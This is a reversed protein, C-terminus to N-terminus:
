KNKRGFLRKKNEPQDEYQYYYQSYGGMKQGCDNLISGIVNVNLKKLEKYANLILKQRAKGERIVMLTGDAKLALLQPDTVSLVPPTDIIIYDYTEKLYSLLQSMKESGVLEAPNPPIKGATLVDFQDDVKQIVESPNLKQVILDSLGVQNSLQLKKHITPKRLDADILLVKKNMKSFSKALNSAVTSKGEGPISSTVVLSKLETDIGSYQISTRLSRYAEMSLSKKFKEM